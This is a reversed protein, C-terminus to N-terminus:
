EKSKHSSLLSIFGLDQISWYSHESKTRARTKMFRLCFSASMVSVINLPPVVLSVFLGPLHLHTLIPGEYNGWLQSFELGWGRSWPLLSTVKRFSWPDRQPLCCPHFHLVAKTCKTKSKWSHFWGISVWQSRKLQNKDKISVESSFHRWTSTRCLTSLLGLNLKLDVLSKRQSRPSINATCGRSM